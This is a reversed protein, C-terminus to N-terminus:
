DSMSSRPYATQIPATPPDPAADDFPIPFRVSPSIWASGHSPVGGLLISVTPPRKPYGDALTKSVRRVRPPISPCNEKSFKSFPDKGGKGAFHSGALIGIRLGPGVEGTPSESESCERRVLTRERSHNRFASM